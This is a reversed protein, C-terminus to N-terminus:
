NWCVCFRFCSLRRHYDFVSQFAGLLGFLFLLLLMGRDGYLFDCDRDASFIWDFLLWSAHPRKGPAPSYQSPFLVIFMIIFSHPPM